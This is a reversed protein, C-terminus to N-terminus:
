NLQVGTIWEPLWENFRDYEDSFIFYCPFDVGEEPYIGCGDTYYLLCSIRGGRREYEALRHFVPTFDTGGGGEYSHEGLLAREIEGGDYM